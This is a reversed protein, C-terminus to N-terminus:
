VQFSEKPSPDSITWAKVASRLKAASPDRWSRESEMTLEPGDLHDISGMDQTLKRHVAAELEDFSLNWVTDGFRQSLVGLAKIAPIWV